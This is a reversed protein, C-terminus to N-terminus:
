HVFHIEPESGRHHYPIQLRYPPRATSVRRHLARLQGETIYRVRGEQDVEELYVFFAGDGATSSVYLTVIPYGTIELDAELPPSTYTLLRRDMAARDRYIVPKGMETHWRNTTGTTAEFDVTYRDGGTAATPPEPSLAHGEALYWRQTMSGAPPWVTTRKWKEEGLTFYFLEQETSAAGDGLWGDFFRLNEQWQQEVPPQPKSKPAAYPSGHHEGTHSWAGIVARQPNDFTLFRRIVTDATAADLWSGWGFIAVGSREIQERYSFVSWDDLTFPLNGCPDDRFTIGKVVHYIDLNDRRAAVAEKLQEGGQDADVPRVWKVLLRLYWPVSGPVKNQDLAANGDSWARAFWENFIGGPFLIDSYVDFEIMQPIVAKVAPQGAVSLLEAATGEYSIGVAGVKGNSWPQRAIWAAVEGYDELEDASWPYAWSGTSAGSGRADVVVVAYGRRAFFGAVPGRHAQPAKRPPSPTRLAMSRWYRTLILVAPLQADPPLEAPLLIDVAIKVGDRMTLYRSQTTVGPYRPARQDQKLGFQVEYSHKDSNM